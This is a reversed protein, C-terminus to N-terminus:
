IHRKNHKLINRRIGGQQSIKIVFPHQINGFAKEADESRIMHNEDKMKNIHHIVNLSKYISYWGQMGLIFGM